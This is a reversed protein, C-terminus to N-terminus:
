ALGDALYGTMGILKICPMDIKMMRNSHSENTLGRTQIILFVVQHNVWTAAAEAIGSPPWRWGGEEYVGKMIKVGEPWRSISELDQQAFVGDAIISTDGFVNRRSRGNQPILDFVLIQHTAEWWLLAENLSIPGIAHRWDCLSQLIM